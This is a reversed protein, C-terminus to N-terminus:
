NDAIAKYLDLLFIRIEHSFDEKDSRGFNDVNVQLLYHLLVILDEFTILKKELHSSVFDMLALVLAEARPSDGPYVIREVSGRKDVFRVPASFAFNTLTRDQYLQISFITKNKQAE